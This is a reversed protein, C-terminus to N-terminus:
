QLQETPIVEALSEHIRNLFAEAQAYAANADDLDFTLSVKYDAATRADALERIIRAWEPEIRGTRVFNRGFLNRTARHTETSFGHLELAGRAGHLVAYYARSVADAYYGDRRCSDAAGLGAQARRWELLATDVSM